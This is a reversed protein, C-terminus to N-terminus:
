LGGTAAAHGEWRTVPSRTHRKSTAATTRGSTSCKPERVTETATSRTMGPLASVRPETPVTQPLSLRLDRRGRGQTAM